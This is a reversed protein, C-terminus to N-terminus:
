SKKIPYALLRAYFDGYLIYSYSRGGGYDYLWAHYSYYRAGTWHKQTVTNYQSRM